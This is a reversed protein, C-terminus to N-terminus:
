KRPVLEVCLLGSHCLLFTNKSHKSFTNFILFQFRENVYLSCESGQMSLGQSIELVENTSGHCMSGIPCSISLGLVKYTLDSVLGHLGLVETILHQSPVAKPFPIFGYCLMQILVTLEM